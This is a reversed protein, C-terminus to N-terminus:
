RPAHVAAPADTRGASRRFAVAAAAFAVGGAIFWPNWLVLTWHAQDPGLATNADYVGALLLIEVSVGRALLLLAIGSGVVTLLLRRLGDVEARALAAGIGAGILLLGGVGWLGAAVFWVPREAALQMGASAALGASGGLAWFFHLAAFTIAWGAAVYGWRRSWLARDARRMM